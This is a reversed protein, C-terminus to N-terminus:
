VLSTASEYKKLAPLSIVDAWHSELPTSGQLNTYYVQTQLNLRLYSTVDNPAQNDM